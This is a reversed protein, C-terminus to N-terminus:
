VASPSFDIAASYGPTKYLDDFPDFDDDNLRSHGWANEERGNTKNAEQQHLRNRVDSAWGQYSWAVAYCSRGSEQPSSRNHSTTMHYTHYGLSELAERLSETGARDYGCSGYRVAPCPFFTASVTSPHLWRYRADESSHVFSSCKCFILNTRAALYQIHPRMRLFPGGASKYIRNFILPNKTLLHSCEVSTKNRLNSTPLRYISPESRM